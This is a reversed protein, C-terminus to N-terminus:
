LWFQVATHPIDANGYDRARVYYELYRQLGSLKDPDARQVKGGHLYVGVDIAGPPQRYQGGNGLTDRVISYANRYVSAYSLLLLKVQRKREEPDKSYKRFREAYVMRKIIEDVDLDPVGNLWWRGLFHISENFKFKMSKTPNFEVGFTRSAFRSMDQLSMNRNSWILLDDGLVYVDRKDVNLSFYSSITGAIIVNVVSDIMQTFYSGSPVGHKKGLYLRLDPMVIPTHIFYNEIISFIEAVTAGSIPEIEEPDFWSRLISFATRILSGHLSADYSSMDISYAWQYKYSSARLKTGLAVTTISYAMPTHGGKFLENLPHAVLGEIFTMSYPFGWVLRTKENFQTRKYAICPEPAKEGHIIQLGRELARTESEAKSCGYNTLGASASPKSTILKLTKPTMPLIHLPAQGSKRSFSARALAIGHSLHSDSKPPPIRGPSFKELAEYLKDVSYISRPSEETTYGQALLVSAVHDDYIVKNADRGMLSAYPKLRALHYPRSKFKGVQRM